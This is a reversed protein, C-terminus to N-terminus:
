AGRHSGSPQDVARRRRDPALGGLSVHPDNLRTTSDGIRPSFQADVPTNFQEATFSCAPRVAGRPHSSTSSTASAFTGAADSM